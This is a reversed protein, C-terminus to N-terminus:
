HWYLIGYVGIVFFDWVTIEMTEDIALKISKTEFIFM